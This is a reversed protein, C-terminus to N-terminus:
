RVLWFIPRVGVSTSAYYADADGGYGVCAFSGRSVDKRKANRLWYWRFSNQYSTIRNNCVKMLPLQDDKDPELIDRYLNDHGFMMGYTPISLGKVKNRIDDPFRPYLVTELWAYLNSGEFGGENTNTVNMRRVAVCDDFMFLTRNEEVKQATALFGGFDGMSLRIKDGVEIKNDPVWMTQMRMVEM